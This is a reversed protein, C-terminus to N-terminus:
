VALEYSPYDFALFGEVIAFIFVLLFFLAWQLLLHLSCIPSYAANQREKTTNRFLYIQKGAYRGFYQSGNWEHEYADNNIIITDIGQLTQMDLMASLEHDFNNNYVPRFLWPAVGFRRKTNIM